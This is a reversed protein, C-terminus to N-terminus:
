GDACLAEESDEFEIVVALSTRGWEDLNDGERYKEVLLDRATRDMDTGARLVRATGSHAENGVEITIQPNAMVNRVWDSRDRGGSLLYIRGDQMGFWIEIRHPRGSRRGITTLYAYPESAWRTLWQRVSSPEDTM